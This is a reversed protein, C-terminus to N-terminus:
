LSTRKLIARGRPRRSRCCVCMDHMFCWCVCHLCTKEMCTRAHEGGTEECQMRTCQVSLLMQYCGYRRLGEGEVSETVCVCVCVCPNPNLGPYVGPVCCVCCRAMSAGHANASRAGGQTAEYEQQWEWGQQNISMRAFCVCLMLLLANVCGRMLYHM